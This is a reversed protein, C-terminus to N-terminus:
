RGGSKHVAASQQELTEVRERLEKLRRHVSNLEARTPLDLSKLFSEAMTQQAARLRTGANVLEGQLRAFVESNAHEAFSREGSEIWLDYLARGDNVPKGATARDRTKKALLELADRHIRALENTVQEAVTRYEDFARALEQAYAHQERFFGLPALELWRGFPRDSTTSGRQDTPLPGAFLEFLADSAGALFGPGLRALQAALERAEPSVGAAVSDWFKQAPDQVTTEVASNKPVTNAPPAALWREILERQATLWANVQDSM